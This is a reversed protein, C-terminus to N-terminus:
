HLFFCKCQVMEQCGLVANTFGKSLLHRYIEKYRRLFNKDWLCQLIKDPPFPSPPPQIIGKLHSAAKYFTKCNKMKISIKPFEVVKWCKSVELKSGKLM